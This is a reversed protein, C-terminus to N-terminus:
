VTEVVTSTHCQLVRHRMTGWSNVKVVKGMHTTAFYQLSYMQTHTDTQGHRYRQFSVSDTDFKRVFDCPFPAIKPIKKGM